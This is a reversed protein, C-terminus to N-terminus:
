AISDLTGAIEADKEAFMKQFREVNKLEKDTPKKVNYICIARKKRPLEMAQENTIDPLDSTAVSPATPATPELCGKRAALHAFLDRVALYKATERQLARENLEGLSLDCHDEMEELEETAWVEFLRTLRKNDKFILHYNYEFLTAHDFIYTRRFRYIADEIADDDTSAPIWKQAVLHRKLVALDYPSVELKASISADFDKATAPRPQVQEGDYAPQATAM